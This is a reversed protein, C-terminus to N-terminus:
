IKMQILIEGNFRRENADFINYLRNSMAEDPCFVKFNDNKAIVDRLFKSCEETDQKIVSGPTEFNLMYKSFDPMNLERLLLGGNSNPNSGMRKEGKPIIEKLDELLKGDKDFCKEIQYSRLWSELSIINEPHSSDVLLPVQHSRFSNEVMKGNVMKPGTWGKPTKLIIMPYIPRKDDSQNKIEMIRKIAYDMSNAM